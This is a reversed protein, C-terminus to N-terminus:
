VRQAEALWAQEAAKAQVSAAVSLAGAEVSRAPLEESVLAARALTATSTVM